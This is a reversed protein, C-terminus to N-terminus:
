DASCLNSGRSWMEGRKIFSSKQFHLQTRTPCLLCKVFVDAAVISSDENPLCRVGLHMGMKAPGATSNPPQSSLTNATDSPFSQISLRCAKKAGRGREGRWGNGARSM